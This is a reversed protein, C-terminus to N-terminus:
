AFLGAERSASRGPLGASAGAELAATLTVNEKPLASCGHTLDKGCERIDQFAMGDMEAIEDMQRKSNKSLMGFFPNAAGQAALGLGGGTMMAMMDQTMDQTAQIENCVAESDVTPFGALATEFDEKTRCTALATSIQGALMEAASRSNGAGVSIDNALAMQAAASLNPPLRLMELVQNPTVQEDAIEEAANPMMSVPEQEEWFNM